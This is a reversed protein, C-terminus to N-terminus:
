QIRSYRHYAEEDEISEEAKFAEKLIPGRAHDPLPVGLLASITPALSVISRFEEVRKGRQIMPGHMLFPVFREGVDLHGHGGIGNGQGHDAMVIFATEDMEGRKMLWAHFDAILEDAEKIKELYEPYLVGRSHGTQDVAIMQVVFLDPNEREYIVKAQEMIKRDVIDNHSVATFSEVYDGFADILHACGFLVGKKGQKKLVDFISEVKVLLSWVMNSKIGHESPYTGTFMSSFCTVTRAPYITEMTEYVTGEQMLRHLFPADAEYLREKRCGDIVVVVVKKALPKKPLDAPDTYTPYEVPKWNFLYKHIMYSAVLLAASFVVLKGLLAAPEPANYIASFVLLQLFFKPVQEFVNGSTSDTNKLFLKWIRLFNWWTTGIRLHYYLTGWFFVTFFIYMGLSFLLLGIDLVGFLWTAALLPLWLFWRLYLPFDYAYYIVFLPLLCLLAVFFKDTQWDTAVYYLFAIGTVYVPTFTKGENLVNWCRAAIIEFASAKKM